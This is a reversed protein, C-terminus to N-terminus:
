FFEKEELYSRLSKRADFLRSKVKKEPIDLVMAVENYSLQEFYKLIIVQKCKDNLREIAKELLISRDKGVIRDEISEESDLPSADNFVIRNNKKKYTIATNIAIRYIWSFFRSKYNFKGLNEYARIFVEQTLDEAVVRQHLMNYLLGFIASQYRLVLVNYCETNGQQIRRIDNNEDEIMYM